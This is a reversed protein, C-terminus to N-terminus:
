GRKADVFITIAKPIKNMKMTWRPFKNIFKLSFDWFFLKKSHQIYEIM